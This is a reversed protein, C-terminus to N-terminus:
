FTEYLTSTDDDAFMIRNADELWKLAQQEGDVLQEESVSDRLMELTPALDREGSLYALTLWKIAQVFDPTTGQGARYMDGLRRQAQVHGKNAEMTLELMAVRYNGSELARVGAEYDAALPTALLLGSVLLTGVKLELSGPM